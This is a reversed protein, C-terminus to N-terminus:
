REEREDLEPSERIRSLFHVTRKGKFKKNALKIGVIIGTALILFGSILTWFNQLPFYILGSIIASLLFISLFIQSWGILETTKEFTEFIKM